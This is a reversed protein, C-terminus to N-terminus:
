QLPAAAVIRGERLQRWEDIVFQMTNRMMMQASLAAIMCQLRRREDIFSIQAEGVLGIWM